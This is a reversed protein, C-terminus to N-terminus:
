YEVDGPCDSDRSWRRLLGLKVMAAVFKPGDGTLHGGSGDVIGDNANALPVCQYESVFRRLLVTGIGQHGYDPLEDLFANVLHYDTEDDGDEFSQFDFAGIPRGQEDRVAVREPEEMDIFVKRGDTLVFEEGQVSPTKGSDSFM